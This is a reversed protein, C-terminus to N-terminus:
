GYSLRRRISRQKVGSRRRALLKNMFNDALWPTKFTGPAVQYEHQLYEDVLEDGREGPRGVLMVVTRSTLHRGFCALCNKFRQRSDSTPENLYNNENIVIITFRKLNPLISAWLNESPTKLLSYDSESETERRTNALTDLIRIRRLNTPTLLTTMVQQGRPCLDFGFTTGGYLIDLCQESIDKSVRLLANQKNSWDEHIHMEEETLYAVNHRKLMVAGYAFSVNCPFCYHYIRLRLELPLDLLRFTSSPVEM